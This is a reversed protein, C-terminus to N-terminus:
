IIEGERTTGTIEEVRNAVEVKIVEEVLQDQEQVMLNAQLVWIALNEEEVAAKNDGVMEVDEGKSMEVM